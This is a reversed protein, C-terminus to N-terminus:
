VQISITAYNIDNESEKRKILDNSGCFGNCEFLPQPERGKMMSIDKFQPYNPHPKLFVLGGNKSQDKLMTVPQGKINTLDHEIFAMYDFIEPKNKFMWQWYGIGGQVCGTKKLCNNNQLGWKYARPIEIKFLGSPLYKTLQKKYLMEIILPFIPSADPHNLKLSVARKIESSDFGFAQVSFNNEKQFKERVRLKLHTSCIAGTATNLSLYKYWVDEIKEFVDSSITEIKKGYWNECDKLFRYTDDDENHTDIFIIRVNEIGFWQICLYCTIASALGGSWWTLVPFEKSIKNFVFNGV